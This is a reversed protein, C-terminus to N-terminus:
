WNSHSSTHKGGPLGNFRPERAKGARVRSPNVAPADPRREIPQERLGIEANDRAHGQPQHGRRFIELSVVEEAFVGLADRREDVGQARQAQIMGDAAGRM